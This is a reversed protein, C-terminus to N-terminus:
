AHLPRGAPDGILALSPRLMRREAEEREQHRALAAHVQAETPTLTLAMRRISTAHALLIAAATASAAMAALVGGLPASGHLGLGLALGGVALAGAATLALLGARTNLSQREIEVRRGMDGLAIVGELAQDAFFSLSRAEALAEEFRLREGRKRANRGLAACGTLTLGFGLILVASWTLNAAGIRDPAWRAAQALRPQAFGSVGLSILALGVAVSHESKQSM